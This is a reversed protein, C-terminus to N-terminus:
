HEPAELSNTLQIEVLDFQSVPESMGGFVLISQTTLMAEDQETAAIRLYEDSIALM